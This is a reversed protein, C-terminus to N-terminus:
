EAFFRDILFTPMPPLTSAEPRSLEWSASLTLLAMAVGFGVKIRPRRSWSVLIHCWDRSPLPSQATLSQRISLRLDPVPPIEQKAKRVLDSFTRESSTPNPPM